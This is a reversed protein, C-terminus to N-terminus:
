LARTRMEQGAFSWSSDGGGWMGVSRSDEPSKRELTVKSIQKGQHEVTCKRHHEKDPQEHVYM